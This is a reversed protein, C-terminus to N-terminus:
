YHWDNRELEVAECSTVRPDRRVDWTRRGTAMTYRAADAHHWESRYPARGLCRVYRFSARYARSSALRRPMGPPTPLPGTPSRGVQGQTSYLFGTGRPHHFPFSLLVPGKSSGLRVPVPNCGSLLEALAQYCHM